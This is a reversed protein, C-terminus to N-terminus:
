QTMLEEVLSSLIGRLTQPLSSFKPYCVGDPADSHASSPKMRTSGMPMKYTVGSGVAMEHHLILAHVVEQLRKSEQPPLSRILEQLRSAQEEPSKSPARMRLLENYLPMLSGQSSAM